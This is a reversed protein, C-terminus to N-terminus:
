PLRVFSPIKADADNRAANCGVTVMDCKDGFGIEGPRKGFTWGISTGVMEADAADRGSGGCSYEVTVHKDIGANNGEASIGPNRRWTLRLKAGLPAKCNVIISGCGTEAEIPGL